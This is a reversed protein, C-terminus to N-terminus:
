EMQVALLFWHSAMALTLLLVFASVVTFLSLGICRWMLPPVECFLFAVIVICWFGSHYSFWGEPYAFSAGLSSAVLSLVAGLLWFRKRIPQLLPETEATETQEGDVVETPSTAAMCYACFEHPSERGCSPCVRLM